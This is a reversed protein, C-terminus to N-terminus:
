QVTSNPPLPMELMLLQVQPILLQLQSELRKWDRQAQQVRRDRVAQELADATLSLQVSGFVELGTRLRQLSRQFGLHNRATLASHMSEMHSPLECLFNVCLQILREPDGGVHTLVHDCDLPEILAAEPQTPKSSPQDM